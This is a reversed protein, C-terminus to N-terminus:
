IKGIISRVRTPDLKAYRMVSKHDKWGGAEMLELPSVGENALWTAFSHRAMHPTFYINLKACFPKLERYLNSKDSWHFVKGVGEGRDKLYALVRPHLPMLRYEDTKSIHYRVVAEGLDIDDWTVRLVDSVRWGQHFLWLLLGRMHGEAAAILIEAQERSLARAEATKEKFKRVRIYPCLNNEAAYHLIAAAPGLAQRNKTEPTTKPYLENAAKVLMHQRLDHLEVDGIMGVLRDIWVQDRMSPRRYESYLRAATTFTAANRGEAKRKALEVELREKFKQAGKKDRAKTSADIVRGYITGRVYWFPSKSPRPAVLKLPM